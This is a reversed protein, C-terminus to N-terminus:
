FSSNSETVAVKDQTDTIDSELVYVRQERNMNTTETDTLLERTYQVPMADALNINPTAAGTGGGVDGIPSPNDFTQKNINRTQIIGVAGVTAANIGGIIPGLIPGLQMATSIATLIGEAVNIWTNALQLKKNKEFGEKSQTDIGAQIAGIIQSASSLAQTFGIAVYAATNGAMERIKKFVEGYEDIYDEPKKENEATSGSTSGSEEQSYKEVIKKREAEYWAQIELLAEKHDKFLEQYDNFREQLEALELEEDTKQSDRITKLVSDREDAYKKTINSKALEYEATLNTTSVGYEKYLEIQKDYFKKLNALEEEENRGSFKYYKKEIDLQKKLYEESLALTDAKKSKLLNYEEDYIRKIEALEEEKTDITAQRAREQIQSIKDNKEKEAEIANEKDKTRQEENFIEINHSAKQWDDYAKDRLEKLENVVEVAREREAKGGFLDGWFTSKYNQLSDVAEEYKKTIEDFEVSKKEEILKLIEERTVGAAEKMKIFFEFDEDEAKMSEKLDTVGKELKKLETNDKRFLGVLDDWYAILTGLAVVLAGIGTAILAKKMGSLGTTFAKVGTLAGQFAVKAQSVGEVLDKLGGVGQAIAMASQVKVFTKELNENEVGLLATVGQVAAFGNALGSAVKQVSEFKARTKETAKQVKGWVEGYNEGSASIEEFADVIDNKYNGVNRQHNGISADLEKLQSNISDIQAGIESRKAEDATERWEKKLQSMTAVLANYSGDAAEVNQKTSDLASKLERQAAALDKSAQEFQETGITTGELIKKLDAVNKRLEKITKDSNGTKITIVNVIEKNAM